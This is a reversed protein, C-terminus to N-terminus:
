RGNHNGLQSLRLLAEFWARHADARVKPDQSHRFQTALAEMAYLLEERAQANACVTPQM